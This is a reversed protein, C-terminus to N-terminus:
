CLCKCYIYSPAGILYLAGTKIAGVEGSTNSQWDTRVGLKKFFKKQDVFVHCPVYGGTTSKSVDFGAVSLVTKWKKKVIYRHCQERNVIWLGPSNVGIQEFIDKPEPAKDAHQCDYVLWWYMNYKLCMNWQSSDTFIRMNIMIKYLITQNSHRQAESSGYPFATMNYVSGGERFVAPQNNTAGWTFSAVQLSPRQRRNYSVGAEDIMRLLENSSPKYGARRILAAKRREEIEAKSRGTGRHSTGPWAGKASTWSIVM